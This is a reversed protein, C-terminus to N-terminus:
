RLLGSISRLMLVNPQCAAACAPDRWHRRVQWCRPLANDRLLPAYVRARVSQKGVPKGTPLHLHM